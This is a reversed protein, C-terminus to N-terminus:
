HGGGGRPVSRQPKPALWTFAAAFLLMVAVIEFVHNTATMVSQSQVMNDLMRTTQEPDM